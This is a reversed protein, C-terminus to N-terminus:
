YAAKSILSGAHGNDDDGGDDRQGLVAVLDDGGDGLGHALHVLLVAALQIGQVLGIVPQHHDLLPGAGPRQARV